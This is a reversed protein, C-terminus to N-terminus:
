SKSENPDRLLYEAIESPLCKAGYDSLWTIPTDRSNEFHREAMRSIGCMFFLLINDLEEDYPGPYGNWGLMRKLDKVGQNEIESRLDNQGIYSMTNKFREMMPESGDFTWCRNFFEVLSCRRGDKYWEQEVLERYAYGMLDYKDVFHNYFSRKSVGAREVIESVSIDTLPKDELLSLFSEMIHEKTSMRKGMSDGLCYKLKSECM